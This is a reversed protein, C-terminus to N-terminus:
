AARFRATFQGIDDYIRDLESLPALFV